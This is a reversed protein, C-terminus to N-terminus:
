RAENIAGRYQYTKADDLDVEMRGTEAWVEELHTHDAMIEGRHDMVRHDLVPAVDKHEEIYAIVEHPGIRDTARVDVAAPSERLFMNFEALSYLREDSVPAGGIRMEEIRQLYPNSLDVVLEMGSFRWMNGGVRELEDEANVNNVAGELMERLSRGSFKMHYVPSETPVLNYIDEVTIPGPLITAGYRGPQTVVVDQGTRARLADSVLNDATSQWTGQRYLLTRTRGIVRELEAKYPARLKEILATIQPDPTLERTRVPFLTQEFATVRGRTVSLDLQGVMKGHSGCQVVLVDRTGNKGRVVTPRYLIDHTHAGVIVDIGSVLEAYKADAKWGMHSLLVVVDVGEQARLRDIDAQVEEVRLGFSWQPHDAVKSMWPYTMGIIAVKLDGVQKVIYPQMNPLKVREDWAADYLNAITIPFRAEAFLHELTEQDYFFEVNGPVMADYGMANMVQVVPAGALRVPVVTGHWTDGSDLLLTREPLQARQRNVIAAIYAFGGVRGERRAREVFLDDGEERHYLPSLYGHTDNTWLIRLDAAPPPHMCSGALAALLTVSAAVLLVRLTRAARMACPRFQLPAGFDAPSRERSIGAMKRLQM